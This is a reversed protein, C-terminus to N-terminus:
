CPTTPSCPSSNTSHRRTEVADAFRGVLERERASNPRPARDRDAAPLRKELTARARQLAGKVSAEGTDLMEAVEATRFGLVDRLVLAARQRPPLHQLAVIFALEVRSGPRTARRPGPPPGPHRRLPRRSLARALGARDLTHARAAPGHSTGGTPPAVQRAARELLPQDRDPVALHAGFSPGRVGGPEAVGGVADGAGRGRRGADHRPDPLLAASARAPPPRHAPSVGGRRGRAGACAHSRRGRRRARAGRM